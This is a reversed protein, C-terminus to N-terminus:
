QTTLIFENLLNITLQYVTYVQQINEFSHHSCFHLRSVFSISVMFCTSAIALNKGCGAM